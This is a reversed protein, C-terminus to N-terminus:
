LNSRLIVRDGREIEHISRTVWGFATNESVQIVRIEGIVRSPFRKDLQGVTNDTSTLEVYADGQRVVLLQNGVEVDKEGLDIVVTRETGILEAESIKDVILGQKNKRGPVKDMSTPSLDIEGVFMGREIVDVSGVLLGRARRKEPSSEILVNGVLEVYSGIKNGTKPHVVSKKPKYVAYTKGVELNEKPHHLYVRDREGLLLKEDVSGDITAAAKLDDAGVFGMNYYLGNAPPGPRRVFNNVMEPGDDEKDAPASAQASGDRLKVEDGPYIWHPDKIQPNYGWIKPWSWPNRLYNGSIDWLTDGRRVLHVNSSSVANPQNSSVLPGDSFANDEDLYVSLDVGSLDIDGTDGESAGASPPTIIIPEPAPPEPLLKGNVDITPIQAAAEQVGWQTSFIGVGLQLSILILKKM